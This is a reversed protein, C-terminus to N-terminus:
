SVRGKIQHDRYDQRFHRRSPPVRFMTPVTSLLRSDDYEFLRLEPDLFVRSIVAASVYPTQNGTGFFLAVLPFVMSDMFEQSFGQRELLQHIPVFVYYWEHRHM